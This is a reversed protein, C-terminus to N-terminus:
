PKGAATKAPAPPPPPPPALINIWAGLSESEPIPGYLALADRLGRLALEKRGAARDMAIIHFDQRLKDETRVYLSKASRFHVVAEASLGQSLLELGVAEALVGSRMREAAQDLQSRREVASNPWKQTAARLARFERDEKTVEGTGSLHRFPQYLPDGLVVGQWSTVPMAM